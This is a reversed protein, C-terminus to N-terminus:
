KAESCFIRYQISSASKFHSRIRRLDGSASERNFYSGALIKYNPRLSADIEVKINPFYNRFDTRIKDAEEKSKVVAIQIKYGLIRPNQKCIEANSLSKNTNNNINNTTTELNPTTKINKNCVLSELINSIRKDITSTLEGNGIKETQSEIQATLCQSFSLYLCFFSIQYLKKMSHFKKPM